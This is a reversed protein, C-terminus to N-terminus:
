RKASSQVEGRFRIKEAPLAIEFIEEKNRMPLDYFKNVITPNKVYKKAAGRKLIQFVIHGVDIESGDFKNIFKPDALLRKTTLKVLNVFEKEENPDIILPM